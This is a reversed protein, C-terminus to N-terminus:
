DCRREHRIVVEGGRPERFTVDRCVGGRYYRWNAGDHFRWDDDYREYYRRERQCDPGICLDFQALAIEPKSAIANGADEPSAPLVWMASAVAAIFPLQGM